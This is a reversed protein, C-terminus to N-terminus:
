LYGSPGTPGRRRARPEIRVAACRSSSARPRPRSPSCRPRSATSCGKSGASSSRRRSGCSRSPRRTAPSRCSSRASSRSCTPRSCARSSRRAVARPDRALRRRGADDLPARRVEDLMTRVMSAIRILKTPSSIQESAEDGAGDGDGRRRRGRRGGRRRRARAARTRARDRLHPGEQMPDLIPPAAPPGPCRIRRVVPAPTRDHPRGSSRSPTVHLLQRRSRHREQEGIELARRPEPLLMGGRHARRQLAVVRQQAVRDLLVPPVTTFVVPSPRWATKVVVRVARSAARAAWRARAASVQATGPPSRTRM